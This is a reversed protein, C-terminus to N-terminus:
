VDCGCLQPFMQPPSNLHVKTFELLSQHFFLSSIIGDSAQSIIPQLPSLAFSYHLARHLHPVSGSSLPFFPDKVKVTMEAVFITTFIYNSITLFVREQNLFLCNFSHFFLVAAYKEM